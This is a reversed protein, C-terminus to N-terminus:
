AAIKSIHNKREIKITECGDLMDQLYSDHTTIFVQKGSKALECIMKYVGPIGIHDINSSVEDLFLISPSCGSSLQMVYAFAQSCALNLRRREGGSMGHYVYPDGDYPVREIKEDFENNFSLNIRNGILFQLWYAIRSNLAPVIGDIVFKRIGTESYADIWFSYYPLIRELNNIKDRRECCNKIKNEKEINTSEIIELYPSIEKNKSELNIKLNSIKEELLKEALEMQPEKIQKLKLIEQENLKQNNYLETLKYNAIEINKRINNITNDKEQLEKQTQIIQNNLKNEESNLGEIKNRLQQITPAINEELIKSCCDECINGTKKNILSNIRKNKGNIETKIQTKQSILQQLKNQIEYKLKLSVEEKKRVDILINDIKIKSENMTSNKELLQQLIDQSEKYKKMAASFMTENFSNSKINIEKELQEIQNLKNTEWSQNQLTLKQIRDDCLKLENNLIEYESILEKIKDKITKTAKKANEWWERYKSLSLLNEVIERKTPNDCELFSNADKDDFILISIFTQYNCGIIEEILKETEPTTGLTIETSEDWIEKDSKWIRLTDPKRTRIVRYDDWRVETKLGKKTLNNIMDSHKRQKPKSFPKGFLTYVIINPISSKGSGNSAPEDKDNLDDYNIGKIQVINGYKSLDIEIGDNGFCLFNKAAFYKFKLNRM